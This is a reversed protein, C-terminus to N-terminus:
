CIFFFLIVIHKDSVGFQALLKIVYTHTYLHKPLLFTSHRSRYDFGPCIFKRVWQLVIAM